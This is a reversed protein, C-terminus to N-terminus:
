DSQLGGGQTGQPMAASLTQHSITRIGGDDLRFAAVRDVNRLRFRDGLEDLIRRRTQGHFLDEAGAPREM